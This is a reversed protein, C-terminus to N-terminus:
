LYPWPQSTCSSGSSTTRFTLFIMSLWQCSSATMGADIFFLLLFPFLYSFQDKKVQVPDQVAASCICFFKSQSISFATLSSAYNFVSLLVAPEQRCNGKRRKLAFFFLSCATCATGARLPRGRRIRTKDSRDSIWFRVSFRVASHARGMFGASNRRQRFCPPLGEGSVSRGGTNWFLVALCLHRRRQFSRVAKENTVIM